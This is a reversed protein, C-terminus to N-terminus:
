VWKAESGRIVDYTLLMNKNGGGGRKGNLKSLLIFYILFFCVMIKAEFGQSSRAMDVLLKFGGDTETQADITLIKLALCLSPLFALWFM